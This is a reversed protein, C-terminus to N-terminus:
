AWMGSCVNHTGNVVNALVVCPGCDGRIGRLAARCGVGVCSRATVVATAKVHMDSSSCARVVRDAVVCYTVPLGYVLASRKSSGTRCLRASCSM